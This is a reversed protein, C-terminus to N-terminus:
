LSSSHLLLQYDVSRTNKLGHRAARKRCRWTSQPTRTPPGYHRFWRISTHGPNGKVGSNCGYGIGLVDVNKM